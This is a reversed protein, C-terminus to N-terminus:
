ATPCGKIFKERKGSKSQRVPKHKKEREIPGGRVRDKEAGIKDIKITTKKKKM